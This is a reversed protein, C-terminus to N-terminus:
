VFSGTWATHDTDTSVVVYRIEGSVWTYGIGQLGITYTPGLDTTASTNMTVTESVTPSNSNGATDFAIGAGDWAVSGVVGKVLSNLKLLTGTISGGRTYYYTTGKYTYEIVHSFRVMFHMHDGASAASGWKFFNAATNDSVSKTKTAQIDSSWVNVAQVSTATQIKATGTQIIDGDAQLETYDGGAYDGAVVADPAYITSGRLRTVTSTNGLEAENSSNLKAIDRATGGTEKGQIAKTNAMLLHDANANAGSDSLLAGSKHEYEGSTANYVLTDGTARGTTDVDSLAAARGTYGRNIISQTPAPFAQTAGNIGLARMGYDSYGARYSPTHSPLMGSALVIPFEIATEGQAVQAVVAAQGSPLEMIAQYSQVTDPANADEVWTWREFLSYEPNLTWPICLLRKVYITEQNSTPPTGSYAGRVGLRVRGGTPTPTLLWVRKWSSTAEFPCHLSSMHDTGAWLDWTQNADANAKLKVLCTIFLYDTGSPITPSDVGIYSLYDGTGPNYLETAQETANYTATIDDTHNWGANTLDDPYAPFIGPATWDGGYGFAQTCATPEDPPGTTWLPDLSPPTDNAQTNESYCSPDFERCRLVYTGQPTWEVPPLVKAAQFTLVDDDFFFVDGPELSAAAPGAIGEWEFVELAMLSQYTESYRRAMSASTCGSLTVELLKEDTPGLDGPKPYQASGWLDEAYAYRVLVQDPIAYTEKDHGEPPKVWDELRLYVGSTKRVTQASATLSATVVFTDDDTVSAVVRANAGIYVIDGAALETTAAGASSDETVTTGSVSWTGTIAPPMMDARIKVLGDADVYTEAFGHGLVEAIAADPDRQDIRGNFSWRTSSDGMTEAAWTYFRGWTGGAGVDLRSSSVGKWASATYIDYAVDALNTSALSSSGGRWSCDILRGGLMATVTLSGPVDGEQLNLRLTCHTYGKWAAQEDASLVATLMASIASSGDGTHVSVQSVWNGCGNTPYVEEDNIWIKSISDQEGFCFIYGLNVYRNGMYPQRFACMGAVKREGYVMPIISDLVSTSMTFYRESISAASPQNGSPAPNGDTVLPNLGQERWGAAIARRQWWEQATRRGDDAAAASPGDWNGVRRYVPSM